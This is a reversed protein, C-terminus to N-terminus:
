IYELKYNIYMKNPFKMKNQIHDKNIKKIIQQLFVIIMKIYKFNKILIIKINSKKM